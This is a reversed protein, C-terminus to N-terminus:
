LDKAIMEGIKEADERSLTGLHVSIPIEDVTANVAVALDIWVREEDDDDDFTLVHEVLAVKGDPDLDSVFAEVEELAAVDSDDCETATRTTEVLEGMNYDIEIGFSELLQGRDPREFRGYREILPCLYHTTASRLIEIDPLLGRALRKRQGETGHQDIFRAYAAQRGEQREREAQAAALRKADESQRWADFQPQLEDHAQAIADEVQKELKEGKERLTPDGLNPPIHRTKPVEIITSAAANKMSDSNEPNKWVRYRLGSKSIYVGITQREPDDFYAHLCAIKAQKEKRERAKKDLEARAWDVLAAVTPKLLRITEAKNGYQIRDTVLERVDDDLAAPDVEIWETSNPADIGAAFARKQDISILLKM